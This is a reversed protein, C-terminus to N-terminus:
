SIPYAGGPSTNGCWSLEYILQASLVAMTRPGLICKITSLIQTLIGLAISTRHHRVAIPSFNHHRLWFLLESKGTTIPTGMCLALIDLLLPHHTFFCVFLCHVYLM